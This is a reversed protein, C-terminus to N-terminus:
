IDKARTIIEFLTSESALKEMAGRKRTNDELSNVFQEYSNMGRVNTLINKAGVFMKARASCNEIAPTDCHVTDTAVTESRLKMNFAPFPFLFSKKTVSSAPTRAHQTSVQFTKKIM